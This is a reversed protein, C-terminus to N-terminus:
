IGGAQTFGLGVAPDQSNTHLPPLCYQLLWPYGESLLECLWPLAPGGQGENPDAVRYSWPGKDSGYHCPRELHGIQPISRRSSSANRQNSFCGRGKSPLLSKASLRGTNLSPPPTSSSTMWTAYSKAMTLPSMFSTM